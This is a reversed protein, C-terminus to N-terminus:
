DIRVKTDRNSWSWGFKLRLNVLPSSLDNDSLGGTNVGSVFRYGADMGVRFWRFVNIEGGITPQLVFVNDSPGDNIELRSSGTKIYAFPHIVRYSDFGYGLLLDNGDLDIKRGDELVSGSGYGEWGILFNDNIEFTFFGGNNLSFDNGLKVMGNSAGGWIGTLKINSIGFLTEEKQADVQLFMTCILVSIALLRKM